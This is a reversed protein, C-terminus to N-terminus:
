NPAMVVTPGHVFNRKSRECSIIEGSEVFRSFEEYPMGCGYCPENGTARYGSFVVQQKEQDYRSSGACPWTHGFEVLLMTM